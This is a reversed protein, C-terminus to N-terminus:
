VRKAESLVMKVNFRNTSSPWRSPPAVVTTVDDDRMSEKMTVDLRKAQESIEKKRTRKEVEEEREGDQDVNTM